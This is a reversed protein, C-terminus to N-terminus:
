SATRTEREIAEKMIRHDEDAQRLKQERMEAFATMKSTATEKKTAMREQWANEDKTIRTREAAGEQLSVAQDHATPMKKGSQKQRLEDVQKQTAEVMALSDPDKMQKAFEIIGVYNRIRGELDITEDEDEDDAEPDLKKLVAKSILSREKKPKEEEKAKTRKLGCATCKTITGDKHDKGCPCLWPESPTKVAAQMVDGAKLAAMPAVAYAPEDKHRCILACHGPKWCVECELGLHYCDAKKHGKKGCCNCLLERLESTAAKANPGKGKSGGKGGAAGKGKAKSAKTAKGGKGWSAGKFGKGGKGAEARVKEEHCYANWLSIKMADTVNPDLWASM